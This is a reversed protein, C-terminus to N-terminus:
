RKPKKDKEVKVTTNPNIERMIGILVEKGKM